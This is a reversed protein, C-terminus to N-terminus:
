WVVDDSKTDDTWYEYILRALGLIVFAGALALGTYVVMLTFTAIVWILLVFAAGSVAIIILAVVLSLLGLLFKKLKKM